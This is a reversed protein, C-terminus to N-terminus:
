LLNLCNATLNAPFNLWTFHGFELTQRNAQAVWFSKEFVSKLSGIEAGLDMAHGNEFQNHGKGAQDTDV